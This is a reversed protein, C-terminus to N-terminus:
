FYYDFSVPFCNADMVPLSSVLVRAAMVNIERSEHPMLYSVM